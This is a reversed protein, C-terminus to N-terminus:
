NTIYRLFQIDYVEGAMVPVNFIITVSTTTYSITYSARDSLNKQMVTNDRFVTDTNIIPNAYALVITTDGESMPSNIDGITFGVQVGIIGIQSGTPPTIVIGGSQGLISQSAQGYKGLLAIYYTLADVLDQDTPDIAYRWAISKGVIDIHRSLLPYLLGGQNKVFNNQDNAALFGSIRGIAQVYPINQPIPM